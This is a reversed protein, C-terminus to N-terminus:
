RGPWRAAATVTFWGTTTATGARTTVTIPGTTAAAPVRAVVYSSTGSIIAAPTGNFTVQRAPSLNRGTITV